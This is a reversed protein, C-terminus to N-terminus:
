SGISPRQPISSIAQKLLDPCIEATRLTNRCVAGRVGLWDAQLKSLSQLQALQISGALAVGLKLQKAMCIMEELQYLTYHDLLGGSKKNHTDILVFKGGLSKATEIVEQWSPSRSSANDAYHVLILQSHRVLARSIREAVVKWESGICGALAVKLYCRAPLKAALVQALEESWDKLEGGAISVQVGEPIELELISFILEVPPRGLSGLDPEKVDLWRAGAAIVLQSESLSRASILLGPSPIWLAKRIPAAATSNANM